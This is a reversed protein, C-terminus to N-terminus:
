TQDIDKFLKSLIKKLDPDTIGSKASELFPVLQSKDHGARYLKAQYIMELKDIQHLLRAEKSTNKQYETWLRWYKARQKTGLKKLIESVAKNELKEKESKSIEDPTFDGTISEALDHLLAM